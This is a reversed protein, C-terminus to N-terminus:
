PKTAAPPKGDRVCRFGVHVSGTDIAGKGRTGVLYRACYQNSCLFSGGRQVRKPIGPEDPDFSDAPGKPNRSIGPGLKQYTDPRFWDSCWEWVNGSVDYLGYANPAFQRVPAIGKFGDEVADANPFRGQFANCQWKGDLLLDDGWPYAKKELGGRAAREWEAETPLRKGAWKAFAEADEYAVHVVPFNMRSAILSDPGDPHRWSAGPVYRWWQLPNDLMVPSDPATFVVSGPVLLAPDAGPFDEPRPKRESVTVYGTARVFKDFQENTVETVDMWFGDVHAQHGPECDTFGGSLGTCVPEGPRLKNRLEAMPSDSPGGMWFEGAPIWAMGELAMNRAANGPSPAPSTEAAKDRGDCGLLLAAAAISLAVENLLRSFAPPKVQAIPNIAPRSM